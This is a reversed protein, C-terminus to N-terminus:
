RGKAKHHHKPKHKHKHKPQWAPRSDAPPDVSAAAVRARRASASAATGGVPAVGTGDPNMTYLQRAGDRDSYFLIQQGDPSWVPATDNAPDDTLRTVPDSTNSDPPGSDVDVVYIDANGNVVSSFVIQKGDPSWDPDRSSDLTPDMWRDGSNDWNEVKIYSKHQGDVDAELVYAFRPSTPSWVTSHCSGTQPPNFIGVCADHAIDIAGNINSNPDYQDTVSTKWIWWHGQTDMRSFTIYNGDTSWAPDFADDQWTVGREFCDPCRDYSQTWHLYTQRFPHSGDANMIWIADIGEERNSVFALRAGDASWAPEFNDFDGDTLQTRNGGDPDVVFIQRHGNVVDDFAIKGNAGAFTAGVALPQAGHDWSLSALGTLALGLALLGAVLRLWTQLM